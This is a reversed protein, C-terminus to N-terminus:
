VCRNEGDYCPQPCFDLVRPPQSQAGNHTRYPFRGALRFPDFLLPSLFLSSTYLLCTNYQAPENQSGMSSNEVCGGNTIFVLDNETLDIAEKKGDRIVDIRKALKHKPDSCDFEVNAVQVGYHFQVNHSELYKVM